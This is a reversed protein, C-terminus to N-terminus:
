ALSEEQRRPSLRRDKVADWSAVGLEEDLEEDDSICRHWRLIDGSCNSFVFTAKPKHYPHPGQQQVAQMHM